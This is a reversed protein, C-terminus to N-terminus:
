NETSKKKAECPKECSRKQQEIEELGVLRILSVPSTTATKAECPQNCSVKKPSQNVVKVGSTPTENAASRIDSVKQCAAVQAPSCKGAEVLKKCAAEQAPTCATQAQLNSGVAMGMMVFLMLLVNKM